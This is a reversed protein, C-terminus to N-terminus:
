LEHIIGVYLRVVWPIVIVYSRVKLLSRQHLVDSYKFCTQIERGPLGQECGLYCYVNELVINKNSEFMNLLLQRLAKCRFFMIIIM